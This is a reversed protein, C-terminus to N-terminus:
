TAIDGIKMIHECVEKASTLKMSSLKAMLTIALEKHLIGFKKFLELTIKIQVM